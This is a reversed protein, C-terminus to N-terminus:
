HSQTFDYQQNDCLDYNKKNVCSEGVKITCKKCMNYEIKNM